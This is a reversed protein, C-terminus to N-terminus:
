AGSSLNLGADAITSSTVICEVKEVVFISLMTNRGLLHVGQDLEQVSLHSKCGDGRKDEVSFQLPDLTTKFGAPSVAPLLVLPFYLGGCLLSM